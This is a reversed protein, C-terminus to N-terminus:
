KEAALCPPFFSHRLNIVVRVAVDVDELTLGDGDDAVAALAMGMGQVQFFAADIHHNAQVFAAFGGIHGTGGAQFDLSHRFGHSCSIHGHDQDRIFLLGVYVFGFDSGVQLTAAGQSKGMAEVDMEFLDDRGSIHVYEHNGGFSRAMQHAPSEYFAATDRVYESHFLISRALAEVQGQSIGSADAAGTGPDDLGGELFFRFGVQESFLSDQAATDALQDGVSEFGEAFGAILRFDGIKFGEM